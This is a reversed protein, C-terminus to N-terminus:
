PAFPGLRVGRDDEWSIARWPESDDNRHIDVSERARTFEVTFFFRTMKDEVSEFDIEGGMCEVIAQTIVLGSGPARPRPRRRSGAPQCFPVFLAHQKEKPIGVGNDKIEFTVAVSGGIESMKSVSVNFEVLATRGEVNSSYKIANDVLNICCQRLRFFDGVFKTNFHQPSDIHMVLEVGRSSAKQSIDTVQEILQRLTFVDKSLEIPSGAEGSQDKGGRVQRLGPDSQHSGPAGGRVDLEGQHVLHHVRHAGRVGHGPHQVRHHLQTAFRREDHHQLFRARQTPCAGRVGSSSRGAGRSFRMSGASIVLSYTFPSVDNYLYLDHQQKCSLFGWEAFFYITPYGTWAVIKLGAITLLRAADMKGMEASRLIDMLARVSHHIVYLFCSLACALFGVRSIGTTMPMILGCAIM